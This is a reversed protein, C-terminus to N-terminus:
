SAQARLVGVEDGAADVVGRFLGRRRRITQCVALQGLLLPRSRAPRVDIGCRDLARVQLLIPM